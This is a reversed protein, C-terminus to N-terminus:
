KEEMTNLNFLKLKCLNKILKLLIYIYINTNKMTSGFM